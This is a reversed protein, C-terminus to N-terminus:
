TNLRYIPKREEKSLEDIGPDKSYSEALHFGFEEERSPSRTPDSSVFSKLRAINPAISPHLLPTM